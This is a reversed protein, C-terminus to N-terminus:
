GKGKGPLVSVEPSLEFRLAAHAMRLATEIEGPTEGRAFLFGLYSSGEPLPVLPYGVRATIEVGEIGPVAEAAAVGEISQLIGAGPIPIMMVGAARSERRLDPIELGAAHRLILEELSVGAGFTLIRSCLGGISRAAIEIIWPGEDNLRLEAHVPGEQLGLALAGQEACAGIAAQVEEPLRSPTVYITEEFFPGDLPDPKDFLALVTLRGGILMGELAVERGPIFREVLVHRGVEPGLAKAADWLIRRLRRWAAVFAAPDDARIVGRSGSLLTPKLVCPYPVEEAARLPDEGADFLRFAPSPVRARALLKRMRQKDRAAITAEVPNHPLGLAWAARAALVTGSDDMGVVARVPRRAHFKRIARVSAAPNRFDLGLETHGAAALAPGVDIGKVVEVGLRRAAELFAKARYTTTSILLLVRM